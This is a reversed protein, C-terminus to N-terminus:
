PDEPDPNLNPAPDPNLSVPDAIRGFLYWGRIDEGGGELM